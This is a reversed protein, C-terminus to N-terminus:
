VAVLKLCMLLLFYGSLFYAYLITDVILEPNYNTQQTRCTQPCEGNVARRIRQIGNAKPTLSKLIM